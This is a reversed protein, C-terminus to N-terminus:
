EIVTFGCAKFIAAAEESKLFDVFLAAEEPHKTNETVAVPYIVEKKLCGEPVVAAIKVKDAAAADTAYAIGADASGEAVWNLVETVNTGLSLKGEVQDWIGLACLAEKGYQGAPVSDPDGLAITKARAIDGFGTISSIGQAPVILVIKNQLLGVRTGADILGKEALAEMQKEAAPMFVDADLGEEIQVQLRGSSDYAGEVTIWPYKEQFAPIIERDYSEKLSAAAAVLITTGEGAATEKLGSGCGGLMMGAVACTAAVAFWQRLKGM